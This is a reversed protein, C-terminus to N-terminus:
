FIKTIGFTFFSFGLFGLVVTLIQSRRIKRVPMSNEVLVAVKQAIEDIVEEPFFFKERLHRKSAHIIPVGIEFDDETGTPEGPKM